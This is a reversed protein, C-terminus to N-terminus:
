QGSIFPLGSAIRYNRFVGDVARYTYKQQHSGVLLDYACPTIGRPEPLLVAFDDPLHKRWDRLRKDLIPQNDTPVCYQINSRTRSFRCQGNSGQDAGFALDEPDIRHRLHDFGSTSRCVMKPEPIRLKINGRCVTQREWGVREICHYAAETHHKKWRRNVCHALHQSYEPWSPFQGQRDPMEGFSIRKVVRQARTM